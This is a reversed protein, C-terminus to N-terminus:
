KTWIKRDVIDAKGSRILENRFLDTMIAAKQVTCYNGSDFDIVAISPHSFIFYVPTILFCCFFMIQKKM